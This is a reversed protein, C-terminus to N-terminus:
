TSGPLGGRKHHISEPVVGAPAVRVYWSERLFAPSSAPKLGLRQELEAQLSLPLGAFVAFKGIFSEPAAVSVDFAPEFM